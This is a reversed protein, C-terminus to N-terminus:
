PLVFGAGGPGVFVQMRPRPPSPSQRAPALPTQAAQRSRAASQAGARTQASAQRRDRNAQMTRSAQQERSSNFAAGQSRRAARRAEFTRVAEELQPVTMTVIDFQRIEEPTFIVEPSVFHGLWRRADAAEPSLLINLKGQMQELFSQLDRSNMTAIQKRFRAKIDAVQQDNFMRQVSLWDDFAMRTRRWEDSNFIANKAAEDDTAAAGAAPAQQALIMTSPMAVLLGLGLFIRGCVINRNTTM